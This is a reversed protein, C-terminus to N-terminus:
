LVSSWEVFILYTIYVFILIQLHGHIRKTQLVYLKWFDWKYKVLSIADLKYLNAYKILFFFIFELKRLLWPEGVYCNNSIIHELM